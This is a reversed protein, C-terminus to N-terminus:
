FNPSRPTRTFGPPIPPTLLNLNAPTAPLIQYQTTATQLPTDNLPARLTAVSRLPLYTQADVWLTTTTTLRGPTQSWTIEIAQRDELKMTGVV